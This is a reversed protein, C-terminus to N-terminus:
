AILMDLSSIKSWDNTLWDYLTLWDDTLWDILGGAVGFGSIVFGSATTVSDTQPGFIQHSM